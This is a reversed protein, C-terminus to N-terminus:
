EVTKKPIEFFEGNKLQRRSKLCAPNAQETLQIKSKLDCVRAGIPLRLQTPLVVEGGIAVEIESIEQITLHTAEEIRKTVDIGNLDAHRKLGAKKLVTRTLTGPIVQYTGPRQVAGEILVAVAEVPKLDAEAIATTARYVNVKAILISSALIALLSLALIWESSQLSKKM